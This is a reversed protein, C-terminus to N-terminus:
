FQLEDGEPPKESNRPASPPPRTQGARCECIRTMPSQFLRSQNLYEDIVVKAPMDRRAILEFAGARLDCAPDFGSNLRWDAALYRPSRDISRSSISRCAAFSRASSSTAPGPSRENRTASSVISSSSNTVAEADVGTLEMQYIAQVAALRLADRRARRDVVAREGSCASGTEIIL